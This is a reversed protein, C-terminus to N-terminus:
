PHQIPFLILLWSELLKLSLWGVAAAIPVVLLCGIALLLYHSVRTATGETNTVPHRAQLLPLNAQGNKEYKAPSSGAHAPQACAISLPM